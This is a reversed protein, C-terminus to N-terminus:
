KPQKNIWEIAKKVAIWTAVIKTGEEFFLTEQTESNYVENSM